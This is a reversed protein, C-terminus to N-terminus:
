ATYRGLLGSAAAAAPVLRASLERGSGRAGAAAALAVGLAGGTVLLSLVAALAVRGGLGFAKGM